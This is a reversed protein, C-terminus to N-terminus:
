DLTGVGGELEFGPELCKLVGYKTMGGVNTPQGQGRRYTRRRNRMRQLGKGWIQPEEQGWYRLGEHPQHICVNELQCDGDSGNTSDNQESGSDSIMSSVPQRM